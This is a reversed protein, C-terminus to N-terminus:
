KDSELGPEPAFVDPFEKQLRGMPLGIVTDLAGDIREILKAGEGQAAYAGAKDFSEGCRLYDAIQEDSLEHFTVKSEDFLTRHGVSAGGDDTFRIAWIAVGTVVTHTAGSLARLMRKADDLNKPKGFIEGDLVVMTDAGLVFFTTSKAGSALLEQVVAGAKRDALACSAKRPDALLGADLAEDTDTARVLFPVGAQALLDRRRPSASALVIVPRGDGQAKAAAAAAGAVSAGANSQETM